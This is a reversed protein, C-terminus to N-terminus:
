NYIIILTEFITHLRILCNQNTCNTISLDTIRKNPVHSCM